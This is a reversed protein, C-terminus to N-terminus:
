QSSSSENTKAWIYDNTFGIGMISDFAEDRNVIPGFIHVQFVFIFVKRSNNIKIEIAKGGGPVWQYLKAKTITKITDLHIIVNKSSATKSSEFCLYNNTLYMNGIKFGLAFIKEKNVLICRRGNKWSSMPIEYVPLQFINHFSAPTSIEQTELTNFSSSSVNSRLTSNNQVASVSRVGLGLGAMRVLFFFPFLLSCVLAVSCFIVVPKTLEPERWLLLNRMKELIDSGLGAHNQARRAVTFLISIQDRMGLDKEIELNSYNTINEVENGFSWGKHRLYTYFFVSVIILFITSLLWDKYIIVMYITFVTFSLPPNEWRIISRFSQLLEEFPNLFNGLRLLNRKLKSPSLQEGEDNLVEVETKIESIDHILEEYKNSLWSKLRFSLQPRYFVTRSGIESEQTMLADEAIEADTESNADAPLNVMSKSKHFIDRGPQSFKRHPQSSRKARLEEELGQRLDRQARLKNSLDKVKDYKLYELESALRENEMVTGMFQAQFDANCEYDALDDTDSDTNNTIEFSFKGATTFVLSTGYLKKYRQSRFELIELIQDPLLQSKHAASEHDHCMTVSTHQKGM